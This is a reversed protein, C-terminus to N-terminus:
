GTVNRNAESSVGAAICAATVAHCAYHRSSDVTGSRRGQVQGSLTGSMGSTTTWNAIAVIVPVVTTYTEPSVARVRAPNSTDSAVPNCM